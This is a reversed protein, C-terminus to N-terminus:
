FRRIDNYFKKVREVFKNALENNMGTYYASFCEACFEQSNSAGYESVNFKKIGEEKLSQVVNSSIKHKEYNFTRALDREIDRKSEFNTGALKNYKKVYENNYEENLNQDALEQADQRFKWLIANFDVRKQYDGSKIIEQEKRKAYDSVMYDIAHGFEHYYTAMPKDSSHWNQKFYSVQNADANDKATKPLMVLARQSPSWYALTRSGSRSLTLGGNLIQTKAKEKADELSIDRGFIEKQKQIIENAVKNINEETLSERARAQTLKELSNRDGIAKIFGKMDPFDNAVNQSAKVVEGMYEDSYGKGFAVACDDGFVKNIEIDYKSQKLNKAQEKALKEQYESETYYKRSSFDWKDYTEVWKNGRKYYYKEPKNEDLWQEMSGYFDEYTSKWENRPIVIDGYDNSILNKTLKEKIQEKSYGWSLYRKYDKKMEEEIDETIPLREKLKKKNTEETGGGIGFHSGVDTTEGETAGSPQEPQKFNTFHKNSGTANDGYEGSADGNGKPVYNQQQGAKNRKTPM